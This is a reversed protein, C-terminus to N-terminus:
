ISDPDNLELQFARRREEQQEKDDREGERQTSEHHPNQIRQVTRGKVFGRVTGDVIHTRSIVDIPVM